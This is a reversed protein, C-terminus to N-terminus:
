GNAQNKRVYDLIIKNFNQEQDRLPFYVETPLCYIRQRLEPTVAPHHELRAVDKETTIIVPPIESNVTVYNTSGVAELRSAMLEVDRRSFAHHDGFALEDMVRFHLELYRRMVEPAAIGTAMLVQTTAALAVPQRTALSVPTGYRYATYFLPQGVRLPLRGTLETTVESRLTDVCKSVIAVDARQM